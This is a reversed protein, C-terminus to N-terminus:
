TCKWSGGYFHWNRTGGGLLMQVLQRINEFSLVFMISYLCGWRQSKWNIETVLVLMAVASAEWTTAVSLLDQFRAHYFIRPFYQVKTWTVKQLSYFMSAPPLEYELGKQKIINPISVGSSPVHFTTHLYITFV